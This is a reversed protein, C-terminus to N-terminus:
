PMVRGGIVGFTKLIGVVTGVVGLFAVVGALVRVQRSTLHDVQVVKVRHIIRSTYKGHHFHITINFVLTQLGSHTFSCGWCFFASQGSQVEPEVPKVDIGVGTLKIELLKWHSNWEARLFVHGDETKLISLKPPKDTLDALEPILTLEIICSDDVYARKPILLGGILYVAERPPRYGPGALMGTPRSARIDREFKMLWRKFSPFLRDTRDFYRNFVGWHEIESAKKIFIGKIKDYVDRVKRRIRQGLLSLVYFVYRLANGIKHAVTPELEVEFETQEFLVCNIEAPKRLSCSQRLLVVAIFFLVISVIIILEVM